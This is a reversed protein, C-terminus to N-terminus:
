FVGKNARKNTDNLMTGCEEKDPLSFNCYERLFYAYPGRDSRRM